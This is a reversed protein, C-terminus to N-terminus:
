MFIYKMPIFLYIQDYNFIILLYASVFSVSISFSEQIIQQQLYIDSTHLQTYMGDVCMRSSGVVVASVHQEHDVM